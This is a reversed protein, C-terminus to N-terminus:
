KKTVKYASQNKDFKDKCEPTALIVRDGAATNSHYILRAPKGCVPCKENVPPGAQVLGTLALTLSLTFLLAKM